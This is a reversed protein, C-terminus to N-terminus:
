GRHDIEFLRSRTVWFPFCRHDVTVSIVIPEPSQPRRVFAGSLEFEGGPRTGFEQTFRIPLDELGARAHMKLYGCERHKEIVASVIEIEHGADRVAILRGTAAPFLRAEIVPGATLFIIVVVLSTM